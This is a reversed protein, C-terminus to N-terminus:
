SIASGVCIHYGKHGMDGDIRVFTFYMMLMKFQMLRM